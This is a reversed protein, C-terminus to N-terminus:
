RRWELPVGARSAENDLANLQAELEKVRGEDREIEDMQRNYAFRDRSRQYIVRKRRLQELAERKKILGDRLTEMETRITLFRSRWAQESLGGPLISASEPQPRFETLSEQSNDRGLSTPEAPIEQVRKLYRSPIRDQDDTFHVVGADDVWRYTDGQALSIWIAVTVVSAILQKLAETM